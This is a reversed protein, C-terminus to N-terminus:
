PLKTSPGSVIALSELLSRYSELPPTVLGRIKAADDYRRLRIASEGHPHREFAMAEEETMTGGQLRLSLQSAESLGQVYEPRRRCLYRKAEVHLRIPEVVEPPFSRALRAAGLEEHRADIGRDAIDEGFDHLLHGYDHLLCAAVLAEPEGRQTAMMACQLAHELETVEEGYQRGGRAAFLTFIEEVIKEQSM